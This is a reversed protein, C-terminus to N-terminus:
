FVIRESVIGGQADVKVECFFANARLDSFRLDRWVIVTLNGERRSELRPFMSFDLFVRAARSERAIRDVLPDPPKRPFTVKARATGIVRVYGTAFAEESSAVFRWRNLRVPDPAALVRDFSPGVLAEAQGQAMWHAGARVGIYALAAAAAWRNAKETKFWRAGFSGIALLLLFVPDIIFTWGWTYWTADFPLLARTGYITWLDWVIHLSVGLWAVLFTPRFTRRSSPWRSLALALLAALLPSAPFAHTIGRHHELYTTSGWLGSAIDIDPLNSALALTLTAGSVRKDLGLRALAIGTLTHTLNDV